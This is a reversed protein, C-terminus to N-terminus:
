HGGRRTGALVAFVAIVATFLVTTEGLTDYARYDFIIATVANISATDTRADEVYKRAVTNNAPSSPDGMAPMELVMPGLALVVVALLLLGVYSRM